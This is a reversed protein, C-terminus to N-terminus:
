HDDVPHMSVYMIVILVFLVSGLLCSYAFAHALSDHCIAVIQSRLTVSYEALTSNFNSMSDVSDLALPMIKTVASTTLGVAALGSQMMSTSIFGYVMYSIGVGISAGMFMCTSLFSSAFTQDKRDITLSVMANTMFIVVGIGLGMLVQAWWLAAFNILYLYLWFMSFIGVFGLLAASVVLKKVSFFKNIFYGSIMGVSYSAAFPLLTVCSKFFGYGLGSISQSYLTYNFLFSFFIWFNFFSCGISLIFNRNRCVDYRLIPKQPKTEYWLFSILLVPALAYFVILPTSTWGFAFGTSFLLVLIVATALYLLSGFYDVDKWSEKESLIKRHPWVFLFALAVLPLNIWYVLRWTALTCLAGIILAFFISIAIALSWYLSMKNKMNESATLQMMSLTCPTIIAISLGQLIRAVFVVPVSPITLLLIGIFMAVLAFMFLSFIHKFLRSLQGGFAVCGCVVTAYSLVIWVTELYSLNLSHRIPLQLVVSTASAYVASASAILCAYLVHRQERPSLPAKTYKVHTDMVLM